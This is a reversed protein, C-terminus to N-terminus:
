SGNARSRFSKWHRCSTMCGRSRRLIAKRPSSFFASGPDAKERFHVFPPQYRDFEVLATPLTIEIGAEDEMVTELGLADRESQYHEVLDRRQATTLVGTPEYGRATQWAAMSRRTGAGFAGDIAGSYHGDWQLAQQLLRREEGTLDRESRRAEAPTEDPLVQPLVAAAEGTESTQPDSPTAGPTSAGIPWFQQGFREGLAVYSDSPILREGRLVQRQREAEEPTFPGLVIAYWGTTMAFGAVNPFVGAYARAREEGERLSPQAEIQVWAQQAAAIGTTILSIALGLIFATLRM